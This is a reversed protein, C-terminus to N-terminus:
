AEPQRWPMNQRSPVPMVSPLLCHHNTLLDPLMVVVKAISREFDVPTHWTSPQRHSLRSLSVICQLWVLESHCSQIQIIHSKQEPNQNTCLHLYLCMRAYSMWINAFIIGVTSWQGRGCRVKRCASTHAKLHVKALMWLLGANCKCMVLKFCINLKIYVLNFLLWFLWHRWFCWLYTAPFWWALRLDSTAQQVEPMSPWQIFCTCKEFTMSVCMCACVCVSQSLPLSFM